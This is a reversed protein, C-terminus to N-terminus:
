KGSITIVLPSALQESFNDVYHKWAAANTVVGARDWAFGAWYDLKGNASSKMVLLHNLSDQTLAEVSEPSAIAALGQMGLNKEMPEWIVLWGRAASFEKQNGSVKKFGIAPSLPGNAGSYTSEFHDLQSGTDLTVRKKESVQMGNVDFPEYDLEFLVRIPGNALVRCDVFNRSVWLRNSAWLGTGGCGRSKGASYDDCGEGTDVHYNDVLYWDNIVLSSVRKSWIDIASSTLPEGKWTELAKGYIRHAIRDNEWAFDDFRERVFRGFAKFDNKTYEQRSGASLKFQKSEGPAFDSQFVIIDPTHLEDYDTDVAQCLVEQGSPNKVHIKRLDPQGLARFDAASVEITENLRGSGLRNSATISIEQAALCLNPLALALFFATKM